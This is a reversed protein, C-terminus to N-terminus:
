YPCVVDYKRSLWRVEIIIAGAAKQVSLKTLAAFLIPLMAGLHAGAHVNPDPQPSPPSSNSPTTNASFRPTNTEQRRRISNRDGMGRIGCKEM